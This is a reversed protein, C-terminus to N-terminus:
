SLFSHQVCLCIHITKNKKFSLELTYPDHSSASNSGASGHEAGAQLPTLDCIPTDRLSRKRVLNRPPVYQDGGGEPRRAMKGETRVATKTLILPSLSMHSNAHSGPLRNSLLTLCVSLCSHQGLLPHLHRTHVKSNSRCCSLSPTPNQQPAQTALM